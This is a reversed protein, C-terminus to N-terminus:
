VNCSENSGCGACKYNADKPIKAGAIKKKPVFFNFTKYISVSVAIFVVGYTILDQNM